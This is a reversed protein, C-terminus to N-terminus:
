NVQKTISTNAKLSSHSKFVANAHLNCISIWKMIDKLNLLSLWVLFMLGEQVHIRKKKHYSCISFKCPTIQYLYHYKHGYIKYLVYPFLCQSPHIFHPVTCICMPVPVAFNATHNSYLVLQKTKCTYWSLSYHQLIPNNTSFCHAQPYLITQSCAQDTFNKFRVLPKLLLLKICSCISSASHLPVHVNFM